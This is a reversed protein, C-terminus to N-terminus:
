LPRSYVPGAVLGGYITSGAIFLSNVGPTGSFGENFTSWNQGQNNSVYVGGGTAAYVINDKTVFALVTQTNGSSGGLGNIREAWSAGNDTSVYVGWGITGVYITTGTATVSSLMMKAVPNIGNNAASWNNGDDSSTYIGDNRVVFINLGNTAISIGGTLNGYSWSEGSNLPIFVGNSTAAYLKTGNVAIGYVQENGALGATVLTWSDGGDQSQYLGNSTGAFIKTGVLVLTFIPTNPPIGANNLNWIQGSDKSVYIGTANGAFITRDVVLLGRVSSSPQGAFIPTWQKPVPASTFSVENGYTTGVSNTAYARVYYTTAAAINNIALTFSGTTQGPDNAYSNGLTPSASTSWCIGRASISAGGDSSINGNANASNYSVDTIAGTSVSPVTKVPTSKNNNDKSCRAFIVVVSSCILFQRLWNKM